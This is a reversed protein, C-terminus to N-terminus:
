IHAEMLDLKQKLLIKKTPSHKFELLRTSMPFTNLFLKALIKGVGSDNYNLKIIIFFNLLTYPESGAQNM